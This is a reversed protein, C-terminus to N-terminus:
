EDGTYIRDNFESQVGPNLVIMLLCNYYGKQSTQKEWKLMINAIM